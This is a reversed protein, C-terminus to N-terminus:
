VHARGIEQANLKTLDVTGADDIAADPAVTEKAMAAPYIYRIPANCDPDTMTVTFTANKKDTLPDDTTTIDEAKLAASVAKVTEGSTNTYIIAMTEGEAFTKVAKKNTFDIDLARTGAKDGDFGVTTKLTVVKGTNEPLQPTDAITDDSSSCATIIAGMLALAAM